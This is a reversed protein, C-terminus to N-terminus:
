HLSSITQSECGRRLVRTFSSFTATKRPIKRRRTATGHMGHVARVGPAVLSLCPAGRARDTLAQELVDDPALDRTQELIWHQDLRFQSPAQLRRLGRTQGLSVLIPDCALQNLQLPTGLPQQCGVLLFQEIQILQAPAHGRQAPALRPQLRFQLGQAVLQGILAGAQLEGMRQVFGELPQSSLGLVQVDQSVLADDPQDDLVDDDVIIADGDPVGYRIRKAIGTGRSVIGPRFSRVLFRRSSLNAKTYTAHDARQLDIHVQAANQVEPELLHHLRPQLTLGERNSVGIIIQQAELSSHISILRHCYKGLPKRLEPQREMRLLRAQHVEPARGELLRFPIPGLCIGEVDEAERVQAASTQAPLEREVDPRHLLAQPAAERSNGFPTPLMSVTVHRLLGPGEVRLQSAVVLVVASGRVVATQPLEIPLNPTDPLLPEIPARAAARERPLAIGL